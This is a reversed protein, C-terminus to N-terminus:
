ANEAQRRKDPNGKGETILKFLSDKVYFNWGKECNEYCEVAPVLGVHTMGIKANTGEQSIEWVVRTNNWETKDELWPLYSDTVLWVVKKGPESETIRFAVWTDSFHITFTDNVKETNGELDAGWWAPVRNISNFAKVTTGPVTISCHYDQTKM